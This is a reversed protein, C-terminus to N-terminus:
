VSCVPDQVNKVIYGCGGCTPDDPNVPRDSGMVSAATSFILVLMALLFLLAVFLLLVILAMPAYLPRYPLGQKGNMPQPLPPTFHFKPPRSTRPHSNPKTEDFFHEHPLSFNR